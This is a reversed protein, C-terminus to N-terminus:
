KRMEERRDLIERVKRALVDIGYPKSLFAVGKDLIFDHHVVNETYGSTFIFRVSPNMRRTAERLEKGGMKPMVIDTIVLDIKDSNRLVKLGEAGDSAYLVKYGLSMLVEVVINRVEKDDEVVLITEHGGNVGRIVKTGVASARRETMPLYIKFTTGVGPESYVNIMGDHQKVIGYAMSLGLGTGKGQPKTTFFPDFIKQLVDSKMGMGTDTVTILVYRGPKAWPHAEIYSGNILVNEIEITLTGGRQMADRANVCLNMLVQGMQGKDANIFGADPAEIFEVKITEPLLRQVMPLLGTILENPDLPVPELVTKRAFGLLQRTILAARESARQITVVEKYGPKGQEITKALLESAGQVAMLVNNFDHAIGAALEGVAEMRQAQRLQGELVRKDTVDLLFGVAGNLKGEGDFVGTVTEIVHVPNGDVRKYTTERLAIRKKSAIEDLFAQREEPRAYLESLSANLADDKSAFGFLGIFAENCEMLQGSAAAIYSAAPNNKFFSRFQEESEKLAAEVKHQETVDHALGRVVPKEVGEVRLTNSYSWILKRGSKAIIAMFGNAEGRERIEKLYAPFLAKSGPALFGALNGGVVEEPEYGLAKVLARNVTMIVGDLDHTCILDQSNEVLDRYRDESEKLFLEARKRDTIDISLIFLGDPVPQVSLDFYRADGNQEWENEVRDQIHGEMCRKLLAFTPTNEIGPFVEFMTKGLMEGISRGAQRAVADNLYLYKWDHGIIQCGEMMIDLTERYREESAKLEQEARKRRIIGALANSIALLTEREEERDVHGEKVYLCLVGNVEGASMIPVCYHGHPVIGEYTTEHREDLHDAFVIQGDAFARGCLCEGPAVGECKTLLVDPMNVQACLLLLNGETVFVAGKPSLELWPVSLIENLSEQLIESLSKEGLAVRLINNLVSQIRQSHALHEEALEKDTVDRVTGEYAIIRGSKDRVAKANEVVRIPTGDAKRWETHFDRVIGDRQILEEFRRRESPDVYGEKEIDRKLMAELSEYGLMKVLAPNAMAPKGEPTSVYIGEAIGEFVARYKEESERLAQEALNRREKDQMAKIAYGLNQGLGALLASEEVGIAGTEEGYVMITGFVEEGHIIPFACSSCYGRTRAAERWPAYDPDNLCDNFIVPRKERIARGTPGMGDPSDDWRIVMNELYGDEFGVSAESVVRGDPKKMGTWAMKFGGDEVLAQCTKRLLSVREPERAVLENVKSITKYFRSLRLVKEEARRQETVDLAILGVYRPGGDTGSILFRNIFRKRPGSRHHILMEETEARGTEIARRDGALLKEADEKTFCDSPTKGIYDARKLGTASEWAENMYIYRGDLNRIVAVGPLSGMFSEFRARAEAAEKLAAARERELEYLQKYDEKGRAKYIFGAGFMALLALSVVAITEVAADKRAGDFMEHRDIKAVLEWPSNEVPTLEAIVEAGRYDVGEFHGTRGSAAQAAPLTTQSLPSRLSLAANPNFRLPNLYVADNGSKEVLLIEASSSPVPWQGIFPFLFTSPDCRIVLVQVTEKAAVPAVADIVIGGEGGLKFLDGLLPKGGEVAEKIEGLTTRDVVADAGAGALVEGTSSTLFVARDGFTEMALKLREEIERKAESPSGSGELGGVAKIFLPSGAIDTVHELRDSRWRQVAKAKIAAIAAVQEFARARASARENRLFLAGGGASVAVIIIILVALRKRTLAVFGRAKDM